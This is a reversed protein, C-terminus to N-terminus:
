VIDKLLSLPLKQIIIKKVEKKEYNLFGFYKFKLSYNLNMKTNIIEIIKEISIEDLDIKEKIKKYESDFINLYYIPENKNFILWEGYASDPLKILYNNKVLSLIPVKEVIIEISNLEM